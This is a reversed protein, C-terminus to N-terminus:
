FTVYGEDGDVIITQGSGILRTIKPIGVVAPIGFERAIIAGHSLMGGREMVLGTILPFVPGWGPDTQRTVLIEGAKLQNAQLVNELVRARGKVRGGCVGIGYHAGAPGRQSSDRSSRFAPQTGDYYEGESLLLYEPPHLQSAKHFHEKRVGILPKLGGPLMEIGALLHDIEQYKLFFIDEPHELRASAALSRGLALLTQRFQAYLAAQKMRVRERFAISHHTAKLLSRVLIWWLRSVRPRISCLMREREMEQRRIISEPSEIDSDMYGKLIDFLPAPNERFNPVTLMLEGSCRFGWDRLFRALQSRFEPFEGEPGCIKKVIEPSPASRFLERLREEGMLARALEWIRQPPRSSVLGPIGKLIAHHPAEGKKTGVFRELLGKLLGYTFMAAVDALAAKRWQHFRIDLFSHFEWVRQRLGEPDDKGRVACADLHRDVLRELSRIRWPLLLFTWLTVGVMRAVEAIEELTHLALGFREDKFGPDLPENVGVFSDFFGAVKRGFPLVCIVRYINTLNYYMRAGHTGIIASLPREMARLRRESLGFAKGLNRFYFYYSKLAVSYLLPSIPDPYNENVNANSWLVKHLTGQRASGDSTIPRSQLLFLSESFDVVWEIDQPHDLARELELAHVRLRGLWSFSNGAKAPNEPGALREWQNSTRSVVIRGPNQRGSVLEEGQGLVYEVLIPSEERLISGRCSSAPSRTFLVGAVRAEIMEQIVVGMGALHVRRREQYFLSRESWFSAWCRLLADRMPGESNLAPVSDLQGAFSAARSDEGIASSRVIVREGKLAKARVLIEEWIGDPIRAALVLGSIEDAAHRISVSSRFDVGNLIASTLQVLSNLKCFHDFARHTVAFGMPVPMGRRIMLGLNAAKGGVEAESRCESLPICFTDM